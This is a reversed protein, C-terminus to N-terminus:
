GFADRIRYQYDVPMIFSIVFMIELFLKLTVKDLTSYLTYIMIM